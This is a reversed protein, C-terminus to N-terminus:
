ESPECDGDTKERNPLAYGDRQMVELRTRQVEPMLAVQRALAAFAEESRTGEMFDTAVAKLLAGTTIQCPHTILSSRVGTHNMHTVAPLGGPAEIVAVLDSGEIPEHCFCCRLDSADLPKM